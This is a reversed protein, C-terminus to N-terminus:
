ALQGRQRTLTRVLSAHVSVFFYVLADECLDVLLRVDEVPLPRLVELLLRPLRTQHLQALPLM